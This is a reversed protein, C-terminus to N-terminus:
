RKAESPVGATRGVMANAVVTASGPLESVISEGSALSMARMLRTFSPETVWETSMSWRNRSRANVREPVDSVAANGALAM